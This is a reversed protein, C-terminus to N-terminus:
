DKDRCRSRWKEKFQAREEESMNMWKERWERRKNWIKASSGPPGYHLRGFLIRSLILLGVAQWYSLPKAPLVEPIVANWLWMVAAGLLLAAGVIFVLSFFGRRPGYGYYSHTGRNHM